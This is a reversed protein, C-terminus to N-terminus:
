ASTGKQKNTRHSSAWAVPRGARRAVAEAPRRQRTPNHAGKVLQYPADTFGLIRHVEARRADRLAVRRAYERWQYAVALDHLRNKNTTSIM